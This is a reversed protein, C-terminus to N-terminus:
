IDNKIEADDIDTPLNDRSAAHLTSTVSSMRISSGKGDNDSVDSAHSMRLNRPQNAEIDNRVEPPQYAPLILGVTRKSSFLSMRRLDHHLTVPRSCSLTESACCALLSYLVFSITAAAAFVGWIIFVHQQNDFQDSFGHELGRAIFIAVAVIFSM